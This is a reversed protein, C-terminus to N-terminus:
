NKGRIAHMLIRRFPFFVEGSPYKENVNSAFKAIFKNRLEESPLRSLYTRMGTNSIWAVVSNANPLVHPFVKEYINIDHCGNRYLLTAYQDIELIPWRLKFGNLPEKFEPLEAVEQMMVYFEQTHNTPFQVALEGTELTLKKIIKPFLTDHNTSWHLSANAFIVDFQGELSDIGEISHHKFELNPSVLPECAKLM